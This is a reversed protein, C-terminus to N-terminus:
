SQSETKAIATKAMEIWTGPESPVNWPGGPKGYDAVAKQLAALLDPAAAVLPAIEMAVTCVVGDPGFVEQDRGENRIRGLSWSM